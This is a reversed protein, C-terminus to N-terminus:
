IRRIYKKIVELKNIQRGKRGKFYEDEIINLEIKKEECLKGVTNEVIYKTIYQPTYFVGDKKRKSKSKDLEKGEIQNQLEEIESLSHEFIHGLINVSIDSEFDYSTLKLTHKRLTEDSIVLSNLLGDEKFLGGNYPFIEGINNKAKRGKNILQFYNQFHHYLYEDDGLDGFDM